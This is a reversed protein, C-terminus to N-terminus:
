VKNFGKGTGGPVRQPSRRTQSACRAAKSQAASKALAIGHWIKAFIVGCYGLIALFILPFIGFPRRWFRPEYKERVSYCQASRIALIEVATQRGVYYIQDSAAMAIQACRGVLLMYSQEARFRYKRSTNRSSRKSIHMVVPM